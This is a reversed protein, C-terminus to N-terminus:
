ALAKVSGHLAISCPPLVEELTPLHTAVVEADDHLLPATVTLSELLRQLQNTRGRRCIRDDCAEHEVLAALEQSSGEDALSGGAMGVFHGTRRIPSATTRARLRRM